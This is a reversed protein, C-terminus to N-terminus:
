IVVLANLVTLSSIAIVFKLATIRGLFEKLPFIQPLLCVPTIDVRLLFVEEISTPSLASWSLVVEAALNIGM